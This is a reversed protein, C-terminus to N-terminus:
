RCAARACAWALAGLVVGAVVFAATLDVAEGLAGMVLPGILMGAGMATFLGDIAVAQASPDVGRRGM